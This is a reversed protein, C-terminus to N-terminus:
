VLEEFFIKQQRMHATFGYESPQLLATLRGSATFASTTQPPTMQKQCVCWRGQSTKRMTDCLLSESPEQIEATVLGDAKSDGFILQTSAAHAKEKASIIQHDRKEKLLTRALSSSTRTSQSSPSCYPNAPRNLTCIEYM